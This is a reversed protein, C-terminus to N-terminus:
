IYILLLYYMYLLIIILYIISQKKYKYTSRFFVYMVMFFIFFARVILGISINLELKRQSLSTLVDIVPGLILIIELINLKKPTSEYM